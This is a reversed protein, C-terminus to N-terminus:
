KQVTIATSGIDPPSASDTATVSITHSGPTLAATNLSYSYGVNPCGPRSPYAACVDPRNVGYTATGVATGDVLVQVVGIATGVASTNDIAWGAVTVTGSVTAGPAPMDIHVTPIVAATGAAVTVTVSASATDTPSASDTATVAITHSGATLAATNLSYSYGVNPCGPRGPFAACVDPRNVGYTAYGVATGDVLVQVRSIATGVTSANDIAWGAVTVTGSVTASPAPLDIHVTPIVAATASVVTVTVSASGTDPTANSDTATVAITHSGTTLTGTNLSYSYGVNPCGARGPYAMCVDPRNVGYTAYGVATGDVLVKAGSIATGVATANDIAWGAVTVTGSVTAGPAPSDIHVTPIVVPTAVTVTVSASGTDPPNDSDTATVTITHSGVAFAAANLSYSYGVNPCGARGPYAACVDPRSSGYTANGVVTGDVLVRVSSIATGVATANDIAWGAVTVTGSVAAGPAPLDIHAAPPGSLATPQPTASAETSLASTGGANVAAVKYFYQTGNTVGTDYHITSTIGSAIATASEGGATTGRYVKYSTAGSSATWSVSVQANGATATLGTPAAPPTPPSAVSGPPIVFLTISQSPVTTVISNSTVTVSGLSAISTQSASAIQYAQATGTTPFNALSVTVPTSGQQKNIVMVTLAGDSSRVAAFASLYDPDAVTASVSTDGFTSRNGDYNRYIQMALYTPRKPVTWRTALDFGYAGYIGLVDAQATAGNLGSEDGWNYETCGIELGPYYQNVWSRMLPIWEWIKGNLGSGAEWSSDVFTPDWLVRTESNRTAQSAADDGDGPIANYCHVSLVDILKTVNTQQYNYLQQLLWPYYYTNNHAAYDSGTGTGNAQDLGSEYMAWWTWEEPAVIKANPDAARIASAYAVVNNYEEKYTEPNPYVDVHTSNWLSPENDLIYYKVGTAATSMGWTSLIHQLWAQQIAVSNSVYADNPDNVIRNGTAASIGNGADPQWPDAGTQAGYKAVSYSWLSAAGSNANAGLKAIYPLMPITIMPESGVTAAFTQQIFSDAAKGPTIPDNQLFSEFYWDFDLNLADIQWNYDSMNNGGMRNLPANLAAIDATGAMCVGYINPNIARHNASADVSVSTAANQAGLQMVCVPALLVTVLLSLGSPVGLRGMSIRKSTVVSM